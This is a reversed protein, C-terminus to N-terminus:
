RELRPQADRRATTSEESVGCDAKCDAVVIEWAVARAMSRELCAAVCEALRVEDPPASEVQKVRKAPRASTPMGPIPFLPDIPPKACALLLPLWMM